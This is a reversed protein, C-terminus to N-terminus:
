AIIVQSGYPPPPPPPPRNITKNLTYSSPLPIKKELGGCNLIIDDHSQTRTFSYCGSTTPSLYDAQGGGHTRHHDHHHRHYQNHLHHHHHHCLQHHDSCLLLSSSSLSSCLPSAFSPYRTLNNTSYFPCEYTLNQNSAFKVGCCNTAATTSTLNSAGSSPFRGTTLMAVNPTSRYILRSNSVASPLFQHHHHQRNCYGVALKSDLYEQRSLAPDIVRILSSNKLTQVLPLGKEVM